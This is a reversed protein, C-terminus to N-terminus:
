HEHLDIEVVGVLITLTWAQPSLLVWVQDVWLLLRSTQWTKQRFVAVRWPLDYV